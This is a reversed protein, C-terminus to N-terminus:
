EGMTGGLPNPFDRFPSLTSESAEANWESNRFHMDKLIKHPLQTGFGWSLRNNPLTFIYCNSNGDYVIQNLRSFEEKLSPYKEPDCPQTVGVIVNYGISFGELDSKPLIEQKEMQKYMSQRVGSYAGDAGILVDGSYITNDSCHIIVKDDKEVTKLIKKKFSIKSEPVRKRLIEYFEPRSFALSRYGTIELNGAISMDGIKQGDGDYFFLDDFEKAVKKLDHYIGLQELVTLLSGGFSIASGLPKVESAREFVHYPIDIQELLLAMMIGGIGAGVILVFPRDSSEQSSNM